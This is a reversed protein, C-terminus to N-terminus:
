AGARQYPEFMQLPSMIMSAMGFPYRLPTILHGPYSAYFMWRLRPLHLKLRGTMLVIPIAALAYANGNVATLTLTGIIWLMLSSVSAARCFMWAGLCCLVGMWLYEVFFGGVIFLGAAAAYRMAGGREILHTLAVVLLLTFLINLPWWANGAVLGSNLVICIPTSALGAVLLRSMVRGHMGRALAGPRALNYALVFGFMPMVLRGEEFVVPLTESYLFKNMHDLVM